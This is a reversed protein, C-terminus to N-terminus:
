GRKDVVLELAGGLVEAWMRVLADVDATTIHFLKDEARGTVSSLATITPVGVAAIPIGLTRRSLGMGSRGAGSGPILGADTIQVTRGIRRPDACSLADFAIVCDARLERAAARVLRASCIGTRAAVDTEVACLSYRNGSRAAISRVVRAGLSDHTIDPNGLGVAFLRGRPPLIQLLARQVLASLGQASPEGELTIYRGAPRCARKQADESIIVDTIAVDGIQRTQARIGQTDTLTQATEAALGRTDM